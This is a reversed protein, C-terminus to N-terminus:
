GVWDWSVSFFGPVPVLAGVGLPPLGTAGATATDDDDVFRLSRGDLAVRNAERDSPASLPGAAAVAIREELQTDFDFVDRDNTILGNFEVGVELGGGTENHVEIGSPGPPDTTAFIVECNQSSPGMSDSGCGTTILVLGFIIGVITKAEPRGKQPAM